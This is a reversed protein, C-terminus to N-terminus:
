LIFSKTINGSQRVQGSADIRNEFYITTSVLTSITYEFQTYISNIQEYLERNFVSVSISFKNYDFYVHKKAIIIEIYRHVFVNKEISVLKLGRIRNKM